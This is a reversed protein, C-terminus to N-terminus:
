TLGLPHTPPRKSFAVSSSFPQLLSPWASTSFTTFIAFAPNAAAAWWGRPFDTFWPVLVGVVIALILVARAQPAPLLLSERPLRRHTDAKLWRWYGSLSRLGIFIWVAIFAVMVPQFVWHLESPRGYGIRLARGIATLTASITWPVALWLIPLVRVWERLCNALLDVSDRPGVQRGDFMASVEDAYRERWARPYFCLLTAPKM